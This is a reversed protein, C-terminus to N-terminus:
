LPSLYFTRLQPVFAARDHVEAPPVAELDEAESLRPSIQILHKAVELPGEGEAGAEAKGGTAGWVVEGVAVVEIVAHNAGGEAPTALLAGAMGM